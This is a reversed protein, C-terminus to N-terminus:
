SLTVVFTSGAGPTSQVSLKGGLLETLQRVVSLGLGTGGARRTTPQEVQWFPDFIAQQHETSIGVGTDTVVVRAGTGNEGRELTLRIEGAETFKVANTLLNLLIQRVKASDTTLIVPREPTRVVLQLGKREVLPEVLVAASRVVERMDAPSAHVTERGAELRAFALIEEILTLLHTSSARIRALQERQMPTVPGAIEEALLETYGIVATLPTRLEHSVVALFNAKAANAEVAEHYLQAHDVATAARRALERALMLDDSGYHRGSERTVALTIAGITSDRARMPVCMLGRLGVDRLLSPVSPPPKLDVVTDDTVAPLYLVEGSRLVAGIGTSHTLQPPHRELLARGWEVRSADANAIAVLRVRGDRELVHVACWDALQPVALEAVATLTADFDLSSALAESAAALFTSRLRAHREAEHLRAREIAQAAQHALALLFDFDDPELQRPETFSLGWSGIVRDDVRLPVAVGSQFLPHPPDFREERERLTAYGVVRGTRVSEATPLRAALPVRRWAELSPAAHGESHIMVVEEHPEDLLSMSGAPAGFIARGAEVVIRAVAASTSANSLAATVEQLRVTRQHARAVLYAPTRERSIAFVAEGVPVFHMEFHRGDATTYDREHTSRRDAFARAVSEHIEWERLRPYADYLGRGVLAAPDTGQGLVLARSAPNLYLVRLTRDLAFVPDPLADFLASALPIVDHADDTTGSRTRGSITSGLESSM